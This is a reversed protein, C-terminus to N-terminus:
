DLKLPNEIESQEPPLNNLEDLIKVAVQITTKM